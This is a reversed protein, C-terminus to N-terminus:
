AIGLNKLIPLQTNIFVQAEETLHSLTETENELTKQEKVIRQGQLKLLAWITEAMENATTKGETMALLFLQHFRPVVIGGGTVPSALYNLESNNRAKNYLYRNLNQTQQTACAIAEEGQAPQVVGSGVLILLAQVLQGFNIQHAKLANELEALTRPRYDALADLIPNYVSTQM